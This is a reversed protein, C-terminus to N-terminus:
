EALLWLTFAAKLLTFGFRGAQAAAGVLGTGALGENIARVTEVTQSNTVTGYIQSNQISALVSSTNSPLYTVPVPSPGPAPSPAPLPTAMSRTAAFSSGTSIGTLLVSAVLLAIFRVKRKLM